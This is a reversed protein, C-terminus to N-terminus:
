HPYLSFYLAKTGDWYIYFASGDKCFPVAVEIAVPDTTSFQGFTAPPPPSGPAPTPEVVDVFIEMEDPTAPTGSTGSTAPTGPIFLCNTAKVYNWGTVFAPTQAYAAGSLAVVGTFALALISKM